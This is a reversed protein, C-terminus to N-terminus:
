FEKTIGSFPKKSSEFKRAFFLYQLVNFNFFVCLRWNNLYYISWKMFQWEYMILPRLNRNFAMSGRIAGFVSRTNLPMSSSANDLCRSDAIIM